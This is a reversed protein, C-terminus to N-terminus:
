AQGSWCSGRRLNGSDVGPNTTTTSRDDNSDDDANLAEKWNDGAYGVAGPGAVPGMM